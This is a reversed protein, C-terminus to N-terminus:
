TLTAASSVKYSKPSMSAALGPLSPDMLTPTPTHHWVRDCRFILPPSTRPKVAHPDSYSSVISYPSLHDLWLLLKLWV